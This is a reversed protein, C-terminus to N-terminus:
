MQNSALCRQGNNIRFMWQHSSKWKSKSALLQMASTTAWYWCQGVEPSSTLAPNGNVSESSRHGIESWGYQIKFSCLFHGPFGQQQHSLFQPTTPVDLMVLFSYGLFSDQRGGFWQSCSMRARRLWISCSFGTWISTAGTSNSNATWCSLCHLGVAWGRTLPPRGLRPPPSGMGGGILIAGLGGLIHHLWTCFLVCESADKLCVVKRFADFFQSTVFNCIFCIWRLKVGVAVM